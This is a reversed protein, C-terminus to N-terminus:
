DAKWSVIGVGSGCFEVHGGFGKFFGGFWDRLFNEMFFRFAVIVRCCTKGTVEAM